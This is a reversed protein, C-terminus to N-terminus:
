MIMVLVDGFGEGCLLPLLQMTAIDLRELGGDNPLGELSPGQLSCAQGGQSLTRTQFINLLCEVFASTLTSRFRTSM